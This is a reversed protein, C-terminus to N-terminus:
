AVAEISSEDLQDLRVWIRNVGTEPEHSFEILAMKKNEDVGVIGIPFYDKGDVESLFDKEVRISHLKTYVDRVSAIVESSRLGEAIRDCRIMSM